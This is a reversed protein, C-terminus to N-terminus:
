KSADMKSIEAALEDQTKQAKFQQWLARENKMSTKLANESAQEFSGSDMGVLVYLSGTPSTRTKYIKSGILTENTIQKTVSTLVKDVSESKAAGTTEIYQKVMSRVQVKMNQALQIRASTSAMSKMFDHGAGSKQASGVASLEVGEVPEDCVWGPASTDPADPFVCDAVDEIKEEGSCGVLLTSFAASAILYGLKNM